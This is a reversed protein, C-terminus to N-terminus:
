DSELTREPGVFGVRKTRERALAEAEARMLDEAQIADAHGELWGTMSVLLTLVAAMKASGAEQLDRRLSFLRDFEEALGDETALQRVERKFQDVTAAIGIQELGEIYEEGGPRTQVYDAFRRLAGALRLWRGLHEVDV